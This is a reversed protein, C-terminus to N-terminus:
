ALSQFHFSFEGRVVGSWHDAMVFLAPIEPLFNTSKTLNTTLNRPSRLM